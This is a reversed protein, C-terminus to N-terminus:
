CYKERFAPSANSQPGCQAARDKPSAVPKEYILDLEAPSLGPERDCGVVAGPTIGRDNAEATVRQQEAGRQDPALSRYYENLCEGEARSDEPSLVPINSVDQGAENKGSKARAEQAEQQAQEAQEKAEAEAKAAMERAEEDTCTYGKEELFDPLTKGEDLAERLEPDIEEELEPFQKAFAHNTTDEVLKEADVGDAKAKSLQCQLRLASTDGSSPMPALAAEEDVEETSVDEEVVEEMGAEEEAEEILTEQGSCSLVFFLAFLTFVLISVRPSM